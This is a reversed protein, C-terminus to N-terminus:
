RLGNAVSIWTLAVKANAKMCEREIDFAQREKFSFFTRGKARVKKIVQIVIRKTM